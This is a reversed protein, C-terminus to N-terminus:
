LSIDNNSIQLVDEDIMMVIIILILALLEGNIEKVWIDGWGHITSEEKKSQCSYCLLYTNAYSMCIM